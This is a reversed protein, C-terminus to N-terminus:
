NTQRTERYVFEEILDFLTSGSKEMNANELKDTLEIARKRGKM